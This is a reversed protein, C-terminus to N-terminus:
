EHISSREEITQIGKSIFSEMREISGSFYWFGILAEFATSYRYTQVDTNKPPNSKANRGRRVIAEEEDSLLQEDMWGRLILAQANASVFSVAKQHLVQPKVEGKRILHERIYKEFIVDGMYALTLAKLIKPNIDNSM